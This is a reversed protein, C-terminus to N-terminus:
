KSTLHATWPLDEEGAEANARRAMAFLLDSVRNLYKLAETNVAEERALRVMLREARRSITRSVHLRASLETGAPLIMRKLPPNGEEIEDIWGEIEAVDAEGLRRIKNEHPSGAPTALDAGVDLLRSQLATLIERFRKTHAMGSGCAAAALCLSANTEDVTGYAEVRLHDKAVRGGGFLGTEGEDGSRTYLKM